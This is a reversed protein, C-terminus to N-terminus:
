AISSAATARATEGETPRLAEAEQTRRYSLLPLDISGAVRDAAIDVPTADEPFTLHQARPMAVRKM